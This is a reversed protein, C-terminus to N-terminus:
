RIFLIVCRFVRLTEPRSSFFCRNTIQECPGTVDACVVSFNWHTGNRRPHSTAPWRTQCKSSGGHAKLAFLLIAPRKGSCSCGKRARSVSSRLLLAMVSMLAAEKGASGSLFRHTDDARPEEQRGAQAAASPHKQARAEQVVVADGRQLRAAEGVQGATELNETQVAVTQGGDRGLDELQGVELVQSHLISHPFKLEGGQETSGPQHDGILDPTRM